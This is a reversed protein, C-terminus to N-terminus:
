RSIRKFKNKGEAKATYLAKDVLRLHSDLDEDLFAGYGASLTVQYRLTTDLTKFQGYFDNLHLSTLMIDSNLLLIFEDGGYRAVIGHASFHLHLLHAFEQLVQDGALHGHQDNIQKFDDIDILVTTFPLENKVYYEFQNYIYGRNYLKTLSDKYALNELKQNLKLLEQNNRYYTDAFFRLVMYSGILAIPIQVLRDFLQTKSNHVPLLNPYLYEFLIFATFMSVTLIILFLREKGKILFTVCIVILFVYAVVNNNDAGSQFWGLPLIVVIIILIFATRIWDHLQYYRHTLYSMILILVWKLNANMPFHILINSVLNILSFAVVLSLIIAFIQQEMPLSMHAKILKKIRKM